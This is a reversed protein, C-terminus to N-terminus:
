VSKVHKQNPDVKVYFMAYSSTYISMGIIIVIAFSFGFNDGIPQHPNDSSTKNEKIFKFPKNIVQIGSDKDQLVVKIIANHLMNLAIASSHYAQNNFWAIIGNSDMISAGTLYQSQYKPLSENGLKIVGNTFDGSLLQVEAERGFQVDNQLQKLIRHVFNGHTPFLICIINKFLRIM